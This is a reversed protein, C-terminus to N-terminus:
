KRLPPPYPAELDDDFFDHELERMVAAEDSKPDRAATNIALCQRRAEEEFARRHPEKGREKCWEVYDAVTEAFATRLEDLTRGQFTLVDRTNVVEGHFFGADEDPEITAIYGDHRMTTM